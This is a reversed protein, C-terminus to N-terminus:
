AWTDILMFVAVPTQGQGYAQNAYRAPVLLKVETAKM